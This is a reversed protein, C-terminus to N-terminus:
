GERDPKDRPDSEVGRARSRRDRTEATQVRTVRTVVSSLGYTELSKFGGAGGGSVISSLCPYSIMQYREKPPAPRGDTAHDLGVGNPNPYM